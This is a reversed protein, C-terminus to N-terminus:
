SEKRQNNILRALLGGIKKPQLWQARSAIRPAKFRDKTFAALRTDTGLPPTKKM